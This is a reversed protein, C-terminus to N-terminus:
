KCESYKCIRLSAVPEQWLDEFPDLEAAVLGNGTGPGPGLAEFLERQEM